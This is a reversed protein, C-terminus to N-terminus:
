AGIPCIEGGMSLVIVRSTAGKIRAAEDFAAQPTAFHRWGLRRAEDATIGPSVIFPTTRKALRGGQVLNHAAVKSLGATEVLRTADALSMYGYKLVEPHQRSVGEPLPSVLIVVAGDPVICDLACMAKVGQWLDQDLPHTDAIFIGAEHPRWVKTAYLDLAARCGARHAEVPHGSFVRVIRKKADLLLNVIASLGAKAAIQDIQARMPNDRVGLVDKQPVQVSRWHFEGVAHETAVGPAIIKGGGSFGAAPHPTISGVGIVFDAQSMAKNLVVRTGDALTGYDHLAHPAEWEHNVVHIRGAVPKGLKRDIEQATMHRHTGLAILIRMDGDAVGASRIEDLLAPMVKHVPTPRSVDDVVILVRCGPRLKRSFREMGIPDVLSARILAQEDLGAADVEKVGYVDVRHTDPIDLPPITPYPFGHRVNLVEL